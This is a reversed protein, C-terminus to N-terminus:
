KLFEKRYEEVVEDKFTPIYDMIQEVTAGYVEGSDYRWELIGQKWNDTGFETEEVGVKAFLGRYNEGL